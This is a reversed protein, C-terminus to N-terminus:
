TIRVQDRKRTVRFFDEMRTQRSRGEAKDKEREERRSERMQRFREMRRRVRDERFARWCSYLRDKFSLHTFHFSPRLLFLAMLVYKVHKVRCLFGVLAEEDPETWTLEPAVTQPADLFIKRAEKYKWLHPVPHTQLAAPLLTKNSRVSKKTFCRVSLFFSWQNDM